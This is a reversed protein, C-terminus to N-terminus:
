LNTADIALKRLTRTHSDLAKILRGLRLTLPRPQGHESLMAGAAHYLRDLAHRANDISRGYAVIGQEIESLTPGTDLTITPM